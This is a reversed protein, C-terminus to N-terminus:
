TALLQIIFMVLTIRVRAFEHHHEVSYTPFEELWTLLPRSYLTLLGDMNPSFVTVNVFQRLVRCSLLQSAQGLGSGPLICHCYKHVAAPGLNWLVFYVLFLVPM